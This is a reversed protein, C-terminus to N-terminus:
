MHSYFLLSVPTGVKSLDDAIDILSRFEVNSVDLGNYAHHIRTDFPPMTWVILHSCQRNQTYLFSQIFLRLFPHDLRRSDSWFTHFLMKKTETCYIEKFTRTDDFSLPQLYDSQNQNLYALCDITSMSECANKLKIIDRFQVFSFASVNQPQLRYRILSAAPNYFRVSHFSSFSYTILIIICIIVASLFFCSRLSSPHYQKIVDNLLISKSVGTM